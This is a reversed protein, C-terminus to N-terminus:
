ESELNPLSKDDIWHKSLNRYPSSVSYFNKILVSMDSILPVFGLFEKTHGM